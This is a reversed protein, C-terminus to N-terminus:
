HNIIALAQIQLGEVHLHFAACSILAPIVHLNQHRRSSLIELFFSNAVNLPSLLFQWITGGPATHPM